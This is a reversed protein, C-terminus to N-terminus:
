RPARLRFRVDRPAPVFHSPCTFSCGEPDTVPLLRAPRDAEPPALGKAEVGLVQEGALAHRDVWLEGRGLRRTRGWTSGVHADLSELVGRNAFYTKAASRIV